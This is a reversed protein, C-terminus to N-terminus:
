NLFIMLLALAVFLSASVKTILALRGQLTKNKNKSFFSDGSGGGTLASMADEDGKQLLVSIIVALSSLMLLITVILQATSM